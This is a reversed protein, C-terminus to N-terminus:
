PNAFHQFLQVFIISFLEQAIRRRASLHLNDSPFGALCLGFGFRM